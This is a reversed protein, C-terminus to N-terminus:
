QLPHVPRRENHRAYERKPDRHGASMRHERRDPTRRGQVDGDSRFAASIATGPLAAISGTRRRLEYADDLLDLIGRRERM